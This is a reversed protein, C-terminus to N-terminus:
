VKSIGFTTQHELVDMHGMCFVVFIEDLVKMYSGCYRDMQYRWIGFTSFFWKLIKKIKNGM